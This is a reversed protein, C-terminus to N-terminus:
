PRQERGPPPRAQRESRGIREALLREVEAVPRGYRILAERRLRQAQSRREARLPETRGTTVVRQNGRSLLIAVEYAPLGRLDDQTLDPEFERAMIRADDHGLRFAVKNRTNALVAARLETGLQGLHQHALTFGVGFGRAQALATGLDIETHLLEQVEDLYVMVPRRAGQPQRARRAIAQWLGAVLLSGLLRTAGPGLLGSQLPILLIQRHALVQDFNLGDPQGLTRRLSARMTIARLKNLSPAIVQSREAESLREFWDWFGILDANLRARSLVQRRFRTDVLLAPLECITYCVDQSGAAILTTLGARLVDATRPGWSSRHLARFTSVVQDVVLEASAGQTNLLNYGLLHDSATPDLLRLDEQRHEPLRALVEDVVDGKPDLVFVGRGAEADQLISSALLTSKGTGTPGLIELHQLRDRLRLRIESSARGYTSAGLKLSGSGSPVPLTRSLGRALGPLAPTDLPWGLLGSLEDVNLTLVSSWPKWAVTNVARATRRTWGSRTRLGLGPPVATRLAAAVRNPLHSERASTTAAVGIRGQVALWASSRKIERRKRSRADVERPQGLLDRALVAGSTPPADAPAPQRTPRLLWQLRVVEGRHLDVLQGLLGASTPVDSRLSRDRQGRLRIQAATHVGPSPTIQPTVRVGPLHTRLQALVVDDLHRPVALRHVINSPTAIVDLSIPQSRRPLRALAALLDVIQDRDLDRPFVLNFSTLEPPKTM